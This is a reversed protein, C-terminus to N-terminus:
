DEGDLVGRMEFKCGKGGVCVGWDNVILLSLGWWLLGKWKMENVGFIWFLM